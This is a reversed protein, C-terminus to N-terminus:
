TTEIYKATSSCQDFDVDVVCMKWESWILCVISQTSVNANYLSIFQEVSRVDEEEQMGDQRGLAGQLEKRCLWGAAAVVLSFM